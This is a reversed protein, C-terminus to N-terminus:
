NQVNNSLDVNLEKAVQEIPITTKDIGKEQIEKLAEEVEKAEGATLEEPSEVLENITQDYSEEPHSKLNNLKELTSKDLQITTKEM